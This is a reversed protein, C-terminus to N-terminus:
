SKSKGVTFVCPMKRIGRLWLIGSASSSRWERYQERNFLWQGTNDLLGEKAKQHHKMYEIQSLWDLIKGRKQDLLLNSDALTINYLLIGCPTSGEIYGQVNDYLLKVNSDIRM